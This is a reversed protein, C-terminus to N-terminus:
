WGRYRGRKRASRSQHMSDFVLVQDETLLGRMNLRTNIRSTFMQSNLRNIDEVYNDIVKKSDNSTIALRLQARKVDLQNKIEM